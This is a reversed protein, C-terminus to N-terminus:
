AAGSTIAIAERAKEVRFFGLSGQLRWTTWKAVQPQKPHSTRTMARYFSLLLKTVGPSLSEM